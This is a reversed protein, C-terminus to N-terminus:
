RPVRLKRDVARELDHTLVLGKKRGGGPLKGGRLGHVGLIEDRYEQIMVAGFFELIDKFSRSGEITRSQVLKVARDLTRGEIRADARSKWGRSHEHIAAYKAVEPPGFVGVTVMARKLASLRDVARAFGM